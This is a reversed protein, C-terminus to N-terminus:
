SYVIYEALFDYFVPMTNGRKKAIPIAACLDFDRPARKHGNDAYCIEDNGCKLLSAHLAYETHDAVTEVAQGLCQADSSVYVPDM